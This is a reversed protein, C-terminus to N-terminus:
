VTLDNQRSFWDLCAGECKWMERRYKNVRKLTLTVAFSPSIDRSDESKEKLLIFVGVHVAAPVFVCQQTDLKCLSM